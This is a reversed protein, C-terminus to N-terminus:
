SVAKTSGQKQKSSPTKQPREFLHPYAISFLERQEEPTLDEMLDQMAQNKINEDYEPDEFAVAGFASTLKNVDLAPALVGQKKYRTDNHELWYKAAQFNGEDIKKLLLEEARVNHNERVLRLALGASEFFDRDERMWYYFTPTSIGVKKCAAAIDLTKRLEEVLEDKKAAIKDHVSM